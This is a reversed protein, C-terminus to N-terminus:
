DRHFGHDEPLGLKDIFDNWRPDGWLKKMEPYKLIELLSGDRNDYAIELWKFAEDREGRFAYVSAINPWAVEGWDAILQKLLVDAEDIAGMAYKALGKNYSKWFPHSEEEAEKLAKENEGLSLYISSMLGHAGSAKPYHSLFIKINKEAKSFDYLLWYCLGLNHYLYYNLPDRELASLLMKLADDRKGLAAANLGASKMVHVNEPALALANNINIDAEKFEWNIIQFSALATYGFAYNPDLTVAKKAADKGAKINELSAPLSGYIYIQDYIIGGLYSWAPAYSSDILISQRMLTEANENAEETGLRDIQRAKLYLEYAKPDATTSAIEGSLTIKLQQAVRSAIEDQIAFIDSMERDFTESWVHTGEKSNILQATIRITNGSKRISGELLHGVDLEEGIQKINEEKGKYAFSSTRSIVKLEPVNSLLNLIEESIGDSFYEHDHNPSMDAFALVAISKDNLVPTPERKFLYAWAAIMLLVIAFVILYKRSAMNLIKGSRRNGKENIEFPKPVRVGDNAIAYVPVAASVNKLEFTKLYKTKISNQNKIQDQVKDSILISGPVALNEIRSAVNVADGIIDTETRIIDGVHIGIRVPIFPEKKFEIQMEVACQIAEVSSKFISLTGDGFYQIVGGNYKQTVADFVERHRSRIEIAHEENLQMLATYGQIDTFMIASLQRNQLM